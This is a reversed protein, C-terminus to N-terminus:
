WVSLPASVTVITPLVSVNVRPVSAACPMSVIVTVPMTVEAAALVIVLVATTLLMSGSPFGASLVDLTIVVTTFAPTGDFYQNITYGHPSTCIQPSSM